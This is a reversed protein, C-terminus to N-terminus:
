MFDLIVCVIRQRFFAYLYYIVYLLYYIVIGHQPQAPGLEASSPSYAQNPGQMTIALSLISRVATIPGVQSFLCSQKQSDGKRLGFKFKDPHTPLPHGPPLILQFCLWRLGWNYNPSTASSTLIQWSWCGSIDCFKSQSTAQQFLTLHGMNIILKSTSQAMKPGLPNNKLQPLTWISHQPRYM